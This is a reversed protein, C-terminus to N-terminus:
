FKQSPWFEYLCRYWTPYLTFIKVSTMWAKMIMSILTQEKQKSVTNYNLQQVAQLPYMAGSSVSGLSFLLNVTPRLHSM